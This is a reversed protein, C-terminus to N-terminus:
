FYTRTYPAYSTAHDGLEVQFHDLFTQWDDGIPGSNRCFIGLYTTDNETTVTATLVDLADTEFLISTPYDGPQPVGATNFAGIRFRNYINNPVVRSVTYTTNPRVPVFVMKDGRNYATVRYNVDKNSFAGYQLDPNNKDFLNKGAGNVSYLLCGQENREICTFEMDLAVQLANNFDQATVLADQQNYFSESSDYIAKEGPTDTGAAPYTLVTNTNKAPVQPQLAASQGDVYEKSTIVNDAHAIGVFLSCIIVFLKKM